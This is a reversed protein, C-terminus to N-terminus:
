PLHQVWCAMGKQDKALIMTVFGRTASLRLTMQRSTNGDHLLQWSLISSRIFLPSAVAINLLRTHPDAEPYTILM